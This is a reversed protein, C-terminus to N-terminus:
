QGVIRCLVRPQFAQAAHLSRERGLRRRISRATRCSFGATAVVLSPSVCRAASRDASAVYAACCACSNPVSCSDVPSPRRGCDLVAPVTSSIPASRPCRNNLSRFRNEVCIVAAETASWRGAARVHRRTVADPLRPRALEAYQLSSFRCWRCRTRQTREVLASPM